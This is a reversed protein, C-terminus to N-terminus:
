KSRNTIKLDTTQAKNYPLRVVIYGMEAIVNGDDEKAGVLATPNRATATGIVNTVDAVTIRQVPSTPMIASPEQTPTAHLLTPTVLGLTPTRQQTKHVLFNSTSNQPRATAVGITSLNTTPPPQQGNQHEDTETQSIRQSTQQDTVAGHRRNQDIIYGSQAGPVFAVSFPVIPSTKHEDLVPSTAGGANFGQVRSSPVFKNESGMAGAKTMYISGSGSGPTGLYASSRGHNGAPSPVFKNGSAIPSPTASGMGTTPGELIVTSQGVNVPEQNNMYVSGANAIPKELYASSGRSATGVQAHQYTSGTPTNGTPQGLLRNQDILYYQGDVVAVSLPTISEEPTRAM